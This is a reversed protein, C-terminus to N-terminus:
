NWMDIFRYNSKLKKALFNDTTGNQTYYEIADLIDKCVHGQNSFTLRGRNLIDDYKATHNLFNNVQERLEAKKCKLVYDMPVCSFRAPQTDPILWDTVAISPKDFMVAESMVSSEDSVVMDCMELATMISEEPEIYYLNDYKSEHLARMEEINDIIERYDESWHCQKILMNVKLPAVAKIFDDEKGAYEWSPAYLVSFDYKLNFKEKLMQARNKLAKDNITDSKPYGLEYTGFRPNVYPICACQEWRQAWSKGPVIGIDFRCWREAEWLNSWRNHGQAMDHLLVLSFKSNEPYYVHQCYIGIEAKEKLNNTYKVSYGRKQAEDGIPKLNFYEGKDTCFMTVEKKVNKLPYNTKFFHYSPLTVDTKLGIDSIFIQYDEYTKSDDRYDEVYTSVLPESMYTVNGHLILQYLFSLRDFIETNFYKEDFLINQVHSSLVTICSLTGYLNVSNQICHNLLVEGKFFTDHLTKEYAYDPHAIITGDSDIINRPSIITSINSSIEFKWVTEAIKDPSFQHNKEIFCIYKSSTNKMYDIIDNYSDDKTARVIEINHYKQSDIFNDTLDDSCDLAIVSVQPGYDYLLFKHADTFDDNAFAKRYIILAEYATHLDNMSISQEIIQQMQKKPSLPM